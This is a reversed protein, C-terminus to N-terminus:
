KKTDTLILFVKGRLNAFEEFTREERSEEGMWGRRGCSGVAAGLETSSSYLLIMRERERQDSALDASATRGGGKGRRCTYVDTKGEKIHPFIPANSSCYEQVARVCLLLRPPTTPSLLLATTLCVIEIQSGAPARPPPSYVNDYPLAPAFSSCDLDFKHDTQSERVQGCAFLPTQGPCVIYPGIVAMTPARLGPPSVYVSVRARASACTPTAAILEGWIGIVVGRRRCDSKCLFAGLNIEWDGTTCYKEGGGGGRVLAAKCIGLERSRM